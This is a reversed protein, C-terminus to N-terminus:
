CFAPFGVVDTYGVDAPIDPINSAGMAFSVKVATRFAAVASVRAM